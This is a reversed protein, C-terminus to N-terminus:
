KRRSGPEVFKMQFPMSKPLSLKAKLDKIEHCVVFGLPPQWCRLINEFCLPKLLPSAAHIPGSKRSHDKLPYKLKEINYM